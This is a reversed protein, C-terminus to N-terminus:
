PTGEFAAKLKAVDLKVMKIMAEMLRKVQDPTGERMMQMHAQPVIQWRMRYKNKLSGRLVPEGGDATLADWIRDVEAQDAYTM